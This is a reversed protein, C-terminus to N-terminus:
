TVHAKLFMWQIVAPVKNKIQSKEGSTGQDSTYYILNKKISKM